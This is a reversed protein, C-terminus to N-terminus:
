KKEPLLSALFNFDKSSYIKSNKLIKGAYFLAYKYIFSVSVVM